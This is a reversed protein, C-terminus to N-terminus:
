IRQKISLKKNGGPISTKVKSLSSPSVQRIKKRFSSLNLRPYRGKITSMGKVGFSEVQPTSSSIRVNISGMFARGGTASSLVNHVADPKIDGHALAAMGVEIGIQATTKKLIEKAYDTDTVKSVARQLNESRVREDKLTREFVNQDAGFDTLENIVGEIASDLRELWVRNPTASTVDIDQVELDITNLPDFDITYIDGSNVDYHVDLEWPNTKYQAYRFTAVINHGKVGPDAGRNGVLRWDGELRFTFSRGPLPKTLDEKTSYGEPPVAVGNTVINLNSIKLHYGSQYYSSLDVTFTNDAATTHEVRLDEQADGIQNADLRGTGMLTITRNSLTYGNPGDQTLNAGGNVRVKETGLDGYDLPADKLVAELLGNQNSENGWDHTYKVTVIQGPQPIATGCLIIKNTAPDYQFGNTPDYPQEHQYPNVSTGRWVRISKPTDPTGLNYIEPRKTLSFINTFVRITPHDIPDPRYTGRLTIKTKTPDAWSWGNTPHEPVSSENGTSDVLKVSLAGPYAAATTSLTIQVNEDQDANIRRDPASPNWKYDCHYEVRIRSESTDPAADGYLNIVKKDTPHINWGNTNTPDYPVEREAAGSGVYVRVSRTAGYSYLEPIVGVKVGLAKDTQDPDPLVSDPHQYGTHYVVRLKPRDPTPGPTPNGYIAITRARNPNAPDNDINWGNTRNDSYPIEDTAADPSDGSYAYVRVTKRATGIAVDPPNPLLIEVKRDQDASVWRGEELSGTSYDTHYKVTITGPGPTNDGSIRLNNGSVDWGNLPPNPDYPISVGNGVVSVTTGVSNVEPSTRLAIDIEGDQNANVWKGPQLSTFDYDTHYSVKISSESALPSENGKIGITENKPVATKDKLTYGAGSNYNVERTGSIIRITRMQGASNVVTEPTSSLSLDVENDQNANIAQGASNYDTHYTIRVVPQGVDTIRADPCSAGYIRIYQNSGATNGGTANVLDWGNSHAGDWPITVLGTGEQFTEVSITRKLTGANLEPLYRLKVDVCNNQNAPVSTDNWQYDTVYSIRIATTSSDPTPDPASNGYIRIWRNPGTQGFEESGSGVTGSGRDQVLNWGSDVNPNPSAAPNWPIEELQGTSSTYVEVRISKPHTTPDTRNLEPYASLRLRVDVFGDQNADIKTQNEQYDTHYRVELNTHTAIDPNSSGLFSITEKGSRADNKDRLDFGPLTDKFYPIRTGDKYVHITRRPSSADPRNLEPIMGIELDVEGDQR